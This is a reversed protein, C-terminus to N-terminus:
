VKRYHMVAKLLAHSKPRWGRLRDAQLLCLWPLSSAFSVARPNGANFARKVIQPGPVRAEEAVNHLTRRVSLPLSAVDYTPTPTISLFHYVTSRAPVTHGERECFTALKRLVRRMPPREQTSLLETLYRQVAVPLRSQGRDSRRSAADLRRHARELASGLELSAMSPIISERGMLEMCIATSIGSLEEKGLPQAEM